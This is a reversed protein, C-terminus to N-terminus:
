RAGLLSGIPPHVPPQEGAVVTAGFDRRDRDPRPDGRCSPQHEEPRNSNGQTSCVENLWPLTTQSAVRFVAYPEQFAKERKGYTLNTNVAQGVLFYDAEDLGPQLKDIYKMKAHYCCAQFDRPESSTLFSRNREEMQQESLLRRM